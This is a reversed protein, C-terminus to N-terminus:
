YTTSEDTGYLEEEKELEVMNGKSFEERYRIIGVVNHRSKIVHCFVIGKTPYGIQGDPMTEPGYRNINLMEPRHWIFVFDMDMFISKSGHLDKKIPYHQGVRIIRNQDEINTNLQGVLINMSGIRKRVRVFMRSLNTILTIEDKENEYSTLLTHDLSIVLLDEPYQSQYEYITNELQTVTGTVEIFEVNHLRYSELILLIEEFKEQPLKSYASTIEAYSMGIDGSITRIIEDAATMEFAVHLQRYKKKFGANLVKDAFDKRIMNLIYSKGSGSMGAFLYNKAFRFNGLAANNLKNWRCILGNQDENMGEEIEVKAKEIATDMSTIPLKSNNVAM